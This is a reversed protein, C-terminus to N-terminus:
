NLLLPEFFSTVEIVTPQDVIAAQKEETENEADVRGVIWAERKEESILKYDNCFEQAASAPLAILLGGSTEVARGALLKATRDLVGAIKTVNEIIPLSHIVMRVHATQFKALNDAHGLLGFGTVDTAAHADYKHMLEAATRNLTSMSTIAQEYARIIESPQVQAALKSWNESNEKMWIYANTALQTGLPKTLVLIDGPKANNPSFTFFNHSESSFQTELV